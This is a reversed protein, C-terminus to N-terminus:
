KAEKLRQTLRKNQTSLMNIRIYLLELPIDKSLLREIEDRNKDIRKMLTIKYDPIM